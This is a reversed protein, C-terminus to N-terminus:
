MKMKFTSSSKKKPKPKPPSPLPKLEIKYKEFATDAMPDDITIDIGDLLWELYGAYYKDCLPLGPYFYDRDEGICHCEEIICTM